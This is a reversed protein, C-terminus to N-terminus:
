KGGGIIVRFSKTKSVPRCATIEVMQGLAVKATDDLQCAYKKTRTLYKKYLAHKFHNEVEVVATNKNKLSVIKGTLTKM